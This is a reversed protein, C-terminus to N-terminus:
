LKPERGITAEKHFTWDFM